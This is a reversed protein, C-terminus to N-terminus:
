MQGPFLADTGDLVSTRRSITEAHEERGTESLRTVYTERNGRQYFPLGERVVELLPDALARPASPTGGNDGTANEMM